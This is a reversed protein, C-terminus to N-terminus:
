RKQENSLHCSTIKAGFVDAQLHCAKLIKAKSSADSPLRLTLHLYEVQNSDDTASSTTASNSASLNGDHEPAIKALEEIIQEKSIIVCDHPELWRKSGSQISVIGGTLEFSNESTREYHFAEWGPIKSLKQAANAMALAVQGGQAIMGVPLVESFDIM